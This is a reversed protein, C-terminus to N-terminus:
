DATSSRFIATAPLSVQAVCSQVAARPNAHCKESFSDLPDSPQIGLWSALDQIHNFAAAILDLDVLGAEQLKLWADNSIGCERLAVDLNNTCLAAFKLGFSLRVRAGLLM